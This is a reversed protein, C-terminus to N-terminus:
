QTPWPRDACVRRPQPENPCTASGSAMGVELDLLEASPVAAAPILL